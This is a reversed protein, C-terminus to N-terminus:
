YSFVRTYTNGNNTWTVMYGYACNLTSANGSQDVGLELQFVGGNVEHKITGSIPRWFGCYSNSQWPATYYSTFNNGFRNVGWMDVNSKGNIVTDGTCQFNLKPGLPSSPSYSWTTLRASNWEASAGNNFDVDVNYARSRYVHSSSGTVFGLWNHGNVNTITKVGNFMVWKNDSLRTVKFNTYTLTLVANAASWNVGSTLQVKIQGARTRSPSFCPTIGDFNFFLIKQAIQSSDITVGCLPSVSTVGATKGFGPIDKLADNIDNDAQDSEDQQFRNDANNQVFQSDPVPLERDEEKRCSSAFLVLAILLLFSNSLKM